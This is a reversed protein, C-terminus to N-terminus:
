GPDLFFYLNPTSQSFSQYKPLLATEVDSSYVILGLATLHVCSCPRYWELAPFLSFWNVSVGEGECRHELELFGIVCGQCKGLPSFNAEQGCGTLHFLWIREILSWDEPFKGGQFTVGWYGVRLDSFLAGHSTVMHRAWSLMVIISGLLVKRSAPWNRIIVSSVPLIQSRQSKVFSSANCRSWVLQWPFASTCSTASFVDTLSRPPQGNVWGWSEVTGRRSEAAEVVLAAYDSMLYKGKHLGLQIICPM